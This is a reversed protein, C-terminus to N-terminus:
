KKGTKISSIISTSFYLRVEESWVKNENGYAVYKRFDLYPKKEEFEIYLYNNKPTYNDVKKLLIDEKSPQKNFFLTIGKIQNNDKSHGFDLVIDYEEIKYPIESILNRVSKNKYINQKNVFNSQLYSITDNISQSKCSICFFLFSFIYIYKMNFRNVNILKLILSKVM